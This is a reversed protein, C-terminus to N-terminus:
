PKEKTLIHWVHLQKNHRSKTVKQDKKGSYLSNVIAREHIHVLRVVARKHIHVTRM